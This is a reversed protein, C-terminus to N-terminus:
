NLRKRALPTARKAKLHPLVWILFKVKSILWKM